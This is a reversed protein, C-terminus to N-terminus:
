GKQGVITDNSANMFKPMFVGIYYNGVEQPPHRYVNQWYKEALDLQEIRNMRYIAATTTGYLEATEPMWQILGTAGTYRNRAQPDGGSEIQIITALANPDWGHREAISLLKLAVEGGITRLWPFSWLSSM